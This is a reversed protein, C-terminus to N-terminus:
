HCADPSPDLRALLPKDKSGRNQDRDSLAEQAPLMTAM